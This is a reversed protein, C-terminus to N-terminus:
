CEIWQAMGALAIIEKYRFNPSQIFYHRLNKEPRIDFSDLFKGRM